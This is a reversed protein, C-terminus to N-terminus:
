KIKFYHVSQSMTLICAIYCMINREQSTFIGKSLNNADVSFIKYINSLFTHAYLQYKHNGESVQFKPQCVTRMIKGAQKIQSKTM